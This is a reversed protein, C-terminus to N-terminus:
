LEEWTYFYENPLEDKLSAMGAKVIRTMEAVRKGLNMVCAIGEESELCADKRRLIEPTAGTHPAVAGMYNGMITDGGVAVGNMTVISSLMWAVALDEGGYRHCGITLTGCVKSLRPMELGRKLFNCLHSNGLRDIAAKMSAPVSMHYVPFGWIIGDAEM